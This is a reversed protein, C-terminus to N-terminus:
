NFESFSGLFGCKKIKEKYKENKTKDYYHLYWIINESNLHKFIEEIYILDVEGFSFGYSYISDVDGQLEKFFCLNEKIIRSTPKKLAENMSNVYTDQHYVQEDMQFDNNHGVIPSTQDGHIHIVNEAEYLNELTETYNFTLFTDNEKDILESFSYYSNLNFVSFCNEPTSINNIWESFLEPLKLMVNRLDNYADEHNNGTHFPNIDGEKDYQIEIDEELLSYDFYGMAKEFDSWNEGDGEYSINSCSNCIMFDIIQACGEIEYSEGGDYDTYSQLWLNPYEDYVYEYTYRLYEKFHNFTSPIGHALDFGNGIIFLKNIISM